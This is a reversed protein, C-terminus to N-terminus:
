LRCTLMDVGGDKVMDVRLSTRWVYLKLVETSIVQHENEYSLIHYWVLRWVETDERIWGCVLMEVTIIGEDTFMGWGRIMWADDVLVFSRYRGIRRSPWEQMYVYLNWLVFRWGCRCVKMGEHTRLFLTMRESHTCIEIKWTEVSQQSNKCKRVCVPRWVCRCVKKGGMFWAHIHVNVGCCGVLRWVKVTRIWVHWGRM